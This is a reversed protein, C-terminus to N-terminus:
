MAAMDGAMANANAAHRRSDRAACRGKFASRWTRRADCGRAVVQLAAPHDPLTIGHGVTYSTILGVMRRALPNQRWAERADTLEQYLDGWSKDIPTGAPRLVLGDNERGVPIATVSALNSIRSLWATLRQVPTM